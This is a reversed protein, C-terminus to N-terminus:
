KSRKASVMTKVYWGLDAVIIGSFLDFYNNFTKTEKENEMMTNKMTFSTTISKIVM